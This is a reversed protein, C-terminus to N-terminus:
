CYIIEYLIYYLWIITYFIGECRVYKSGNEMRWDYSGMIIFNLHKIKKSGIIDVTCKRRNCLDSINNTIVEICAYAYLMMIALLSLMYRYEYLVKGIHQNVSKV